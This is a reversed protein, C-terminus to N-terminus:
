KRSFYSFVSALGLVDEWELYERGCGSFLEKIFDVIDELFSEVCVSGTVPVFSLLVALLM